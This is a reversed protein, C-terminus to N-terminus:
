VGQGYTEDDGGRPATGRERPRAAWGHVLDVAIAVVLESISVWGFYVSLAIVVVALTSLAIDRSTPLPSAPM